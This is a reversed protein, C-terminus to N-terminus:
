RSDWIWKRASAPVGGRIGWDDLPVEYLVIRIDKADIGLVDLRAVIDKYLNRKAELSRGPFISIEILTYNETASPPVAFHEPCHEVYRILRDREPIKLAERLAAHLSDM